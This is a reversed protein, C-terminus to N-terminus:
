YVRQDQGPQCDNRAAPSPTLRAPSPLSPDAVGFAWLRAADRDHSDSDRGKVRKDLLVNLM